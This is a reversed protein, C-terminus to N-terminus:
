GGRNKTSLVLSGERRMKDILLMNNMRINHTFFAVKYWEAGSWQSWRFQECKVLLIQYTSDKASTNWQQPQRNLQFRWAFVTLQLSFLHLWKTWYIIQCLTGLGYRRWIIRYEFNDWRKNPHIVLKAKAFFDLCSFEIMKEQHTLRNQQHWILGSTQVQNFSNLMGTRNIYFLFKWCAHKEVPLRFALSQNWM